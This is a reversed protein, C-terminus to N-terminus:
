RGVPTTTQALNNDLNPDLTTSTVAITHTFADSASIPVSIAFAIGAGTERALIALTCRIAPPVSELLDSDCNLGSSAVFNHLVAGPALTSSLAVNVADLPGLNSITATYTVVEGVAVTDPAAVLEVSLDSGTQIRTQRRVNNNQEDPDPALSGVTATNTISESLVSGIRVTLTITASAQDILDGLHCIITGTGERCGSGQSTDSSIVTVGRPLADTLIVGAAVSPGNNVVHLTYTVVQGPITIEAQQQDPTATPTPTPTPQPTLTTGNTKGSSDAQTAKTPTATAVEQIQRALIIPPEASSEALPQGGRDYDALAYLAGSDMTVFLRGPVLAGGTIRENQALILRWSPDEAGPEVAICEVDGDLCNGCTYVVADQGVGIVVAPDQEFEINGLVQDTWDLWVIGSDPSNYGAGYVAWVTGDATTGADKPHGPVRPTLGEVVEVGASNQKWHIIRGESRYYTEGDAGIVYQENGANSTLATMDYGSGDEPNFATALFFLANEDPSLRPPLPDFGYPVRTEWFLEGSASVARITGGTPYIITGRKSIIPSTTARKELEPEHVWLTEGAPSLATIRGLDDAVYVNGADDLAPTGVGGGPLSAEWIINGTDDLAYLTGGKSAIFLTGDRSVAPGGSFGTPDQFVWEIGPAVPGLVNSWLTGQSDHREGSWLHQNPIDTEVSIAGNVPDTEDTRGSAWFLLVGAAAVACVIAAILTLRQKGLVGREGVAFDGLIERQEEVWARIRSGITSGVGSRRPRHLGLRLRLGEGLLTFGAVAVFIATGAIIMGWPETIVQQENWAAALMQGLEPVGSLRRAVFDDVDVWVEGGIYYGLFGLGATTMLTNSIEFSFLMWVMPMIQRLVHTFLISGDSAGLARAAEVYLNGRVFQTQERVYRATEVWGTISLGLVFALLGYEVGIVAIAALAVILVPVALAAGIAADLAHGIRGTSWGAGMGIAIGLVLRVAAVALVMILTPRVAWLLRSLLDRGFQDSGLPFGPVSFPTFPPTDWEDGVKIITNEQMPDQPALHPGIIALLIVLAVIFGGVWLPWNSRHLTRGSATLRQDTEADLEPRWDRTFEVGKDPTPEIM